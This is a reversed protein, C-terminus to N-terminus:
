ETDSKRKRKRKSQEQRPEAELNDINRQKNDGILENIQPFKVALAELDKESMAALNYVRDAYFKM